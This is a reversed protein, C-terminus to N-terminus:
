RVAVTLYLVQPKIEVYTHTYWSVLISMGVHLAEWYQINGFISHWQCM